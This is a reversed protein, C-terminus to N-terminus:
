SLYPQVLNVIAQDEFEEALKLVQKAFTTYKLDLQLLRNAQVFPVVLIVRLPFKSAQKSDPNARNKLLM